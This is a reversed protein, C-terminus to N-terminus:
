KTDNDDGLVSQLRKLFAEPLAEPPLEGSEIMSLLGEAQKLATKRKSIETEPMDRHIRRIKELQEATPVRFRLRYGTDRVSQLEATLTDM